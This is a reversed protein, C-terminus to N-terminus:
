IIYYILYLALVIINIYIYMTNNPINIHSHM